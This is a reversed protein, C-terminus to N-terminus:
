EAAPLKLNKSRVRICGQALRLRSSDRGYILVSALGKRDKGISVSLRSAAEHHAGRQDVTDLFVDPVPHRALRGRLGATAM